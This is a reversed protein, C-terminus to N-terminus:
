NMHQCSWAIPHLIGDVAFKKSSRKQSTVSQRRFLECGIEFTHTVWPNTAPYSTLNGSADRIHRNHQLHLRIPPHELERALATDNDIM